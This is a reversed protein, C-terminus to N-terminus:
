RDLPEMSASPLQAQPDAVVQIPVSIEVETGGGQRSWLKLQAGVSGARERM